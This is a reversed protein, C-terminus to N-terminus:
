YGANVQDEWTKTNMEQDVWRGNREIQASTSFIESSMALLAHSATTGVTITGGLLDSTMNLIAHNGSVSVDETIAILFGVAEFSSGLTINFDGTDGIASLTATALSISSDNSTNISTDVRETWSPNNNTVAYGSQTTDGRVGSGILLLTNALVPTLGPTFTHTTTASANVDHTFLINDIDTITGTVRVIFGSMGNGSTGATSFAFNSAAVDASDAIKWLVRLGQNSGDNGTLLTSWGALSFGASSGHIHLAAFMTDGVALSAPKNITLSDTGGAHSKTASAVSAYAVTM